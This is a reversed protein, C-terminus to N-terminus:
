KLLTKFVANSCQVIINIDDRRISLPDPTPGSELIRVEPGGHMPPAAGLFQHGSWFYKEALYRGTLELCEGSISQTAHRRYLHDQWM